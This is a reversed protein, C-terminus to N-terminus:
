LQVDSATEGGEVDWGPRIVGFFMLTGLVVTFQVLQCGSRMVVMSAATRWGGDYVTRTAVAGGESLTM